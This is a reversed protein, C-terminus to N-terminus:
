LNLSKFIKMDEDIIEHLNNINKITKSFEIEINDSSFMSKNKIKKFLFNDGCWIKMENPINVYCKKNVFLFCGFGKEMATNPERFNIGNGKNINSNDLGILDYKHINEDSLLKDIEYVIIDDNSLIVRDNKSLSIGLNWSPNVYINSNNKIHIVKSYNTLDISDKINNDIVIIENIFKSDNFQQIITLIKKSYWMTPLIVSFTNVIM